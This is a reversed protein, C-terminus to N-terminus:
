AARRRISRVETENEQTYLSLKPREDMESQKTQSLALSSGVVLPGNTQCPNPEREIFRVKGTQDVQYGIGKWRIFRQAAVSCLAAWLVTLTLPYCCVDFWRARQLHRNQTKLYLDGATQRWKSRIGAQIWLLCALTLGMSGSVSQGTLLLGAGGLLGGWFVLMSLSTHVVGLLWSKKLYWRGMFCQRRLFEWMNSINFDSSSAVVCRPEFFINLRLRNLKNTAFLDDSLYRSWQLPIDSQEFTERSIAWSGGWIVSQRRSCIMGMAAANISFLLLNALDYRQPLFWRYSTVAHVSIRELPTVLQSLWDCQPAVDSDAFVITEIDATLAHYGSLLNHIKQGGATSEGAIILYAAVHSYTSLMKRVVGCAPDDPSEVVFYIEYDKYDQDFFSRINEKLTFDLGKCPVILGVRGLSVATRDVGCSGRVYRLHEWVHCTLTLSIAMSLAAVIAFSIFFIASM